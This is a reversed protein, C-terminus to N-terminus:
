YNVAVDDASRNESDVAVRRRGSVGTLEGYFYQHRLEKVRGAREAKCRMSLRRGDLDALMSSDCIYYMAGAVTRPDVPMHPWRIFLSGVLVVIMMGLIVLSMLICVQESVWTQVLSFPINSLLIPLFHSIITVVSTVLLFYDRHQIATYVGYFPNTPRTYLISREPSMSKRSMYLYPAM